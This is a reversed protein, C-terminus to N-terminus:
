RARVRVLKLIGARVLLEKLWDGLRDHNEIWGLFRYM